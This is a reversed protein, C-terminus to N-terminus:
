VVKGVYDYYGKRVSWICYLAVDRSPFGCNFGLSIEIPARLLKYLPCADGIWTLIALLLFLAKEVAVHRKLSGRYTHHKEDGYDHIFEPIFYLDKGVQEVTM